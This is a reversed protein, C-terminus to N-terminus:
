KAGFGTVMTRVTKLLILIDLWPSFHKIYYFDYHLKELVEDVAAVHGQNVQAWGSIGPRVIHRYRYFPLEAEYWRSLVVAEPRPGIWSMEGKLINIIQPLEDLRTKRLLRGVRTIRADGQRTIARNLDMGVEVHYMTRFKYVTFTRGRYGMRQQKFLVPGPSDLQIALAILAFLPTGFLLVALAGWWDVMQKIKFYALNPNISGLTNESLHEIAVRGTLSEAIQKVHFVPIGSLACDTIYREWDQPLDARLDVVVGGVNDPKVRPSRLRVWRVQGVKEIEDVNGHPVIALRYTELSRTAITHGFYWLTSMLFSGAAQFRSYDIRAFFIVLFVAGYAFLFTSLIYGTSAVGPFTAIRRYVFFGTLHAVACAIVTAQLNVTHIVNPDHALRALLPLVIAFLLGGLLQFRLRLVLPRRGALTARLANM